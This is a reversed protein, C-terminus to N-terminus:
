RAVYIIAQSDGSVYQIDMMGVAAMLASFNYTGQNCMNLNKDFNPCMIVHKFYPALYNSM